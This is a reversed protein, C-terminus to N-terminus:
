GSKQNPQYNKNPNLQHQAIQEGTQTNYTQTQNDHQLTV